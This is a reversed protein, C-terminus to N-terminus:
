VPTEFQTPQKGNNKKGRRPGPDSYNSTRSNGRNEAFASSTRREKRDPKKWFISRMKRHAAQGSKDTHLMDVSHSRPVRWLDLSVFSMKDKEAADKRHQENLSYLKHTIDKGILNYMIVNLFPNTALVNLLENRGWCLLQCPETATLTVQFRKDNNSDCSEWEPSDVFETPLLYHLLIDECTVKMKGSLLVALRQDTYTVGEMAYNEGADLPEIHAYKILQRFHDKGVKLPAFVKMYFEQLEPAVKPPLHRYAIYAAQACNAILLTANWALVDPGACSKLAAWAGASSLGLALLLRAAFLALTRRVAPVVFAAALCLHAAQLLPHRTEGWPECYSDLPASTDSFNSLTPM